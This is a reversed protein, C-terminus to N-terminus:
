IQVPGGSSMNCSPFNIGAVHAGPDRPFVLGFCAVAWGNQRHRPSKVSCVSAGYYLGVHRIVDDVIDTCSGKETLWISM